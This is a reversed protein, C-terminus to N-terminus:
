RVIHQVDLDVDRPKGILLECKNLGLNALGGADHAHIPMPQISRVAQSTLVQKRRKDSLADLDAKMRRKHEAAWDEANRAKPAKPEDDM